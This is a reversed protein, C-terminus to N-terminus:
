EIINFDSKYKDTITLGLGPKNDDLDIFGNEPYPLNHTMEISDLSTKLDNEDYVTISSDKDNSVQIEKTKLTTGKLLYNQNSSNDLIIAPIDYNQSLVLM